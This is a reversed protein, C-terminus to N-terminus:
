KKLRKLIYNAAKVDYHSIFATPQISANMLADGNIHKLGIVHGLEHEIIVVIDTQNDAQQMFDRNLYVAGKSTAALIHKGYGIDKNAQSFQNNSLDYFTITAKQQDFEYFLHRKLAQNWLAMAKSAEPAFQTNSLNVLVKKDSPIQSAMVSDKIAPRQVYLLFTFSGTLMLIVAFISFIALVKKSWSRMM